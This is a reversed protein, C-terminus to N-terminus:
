QEAAKSQGYKSSSSCQEFCKWICYPLCSLQFCFYNMQILKYFRDGLTQFILSLFSKKEGLKRDPALYEFSCLMWMQMYSEWRSFLWGSGRTECASHPKIVTFLIKKKLAAIPTLQMTRIAEDRGVDQQELADADKCRTSLAPCAYACKCQQQGQATQFSANSASRSVGRVEQHSKSRM